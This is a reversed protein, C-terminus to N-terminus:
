CSLLCFYRNVKQYKSTIHSQKWCWYPHWPLSFFTKVEAPFHIKWAKWLHLWSWSKDMKKDSSPTRWYMQTYIFHISMHQNCNSPPTSCLTGLVTAM